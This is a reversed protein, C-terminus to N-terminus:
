ITSMIKHLVDTSIGFRANLISSWDRTTDWMNKKAHRVSDVHLHSTQVYADPLYLSVIDSHGAMMRHNGMQMITRPEASTNEIYALGASVLQETIPACRWSNLSLGLRIGQAASVVTNRVGGQALAAIRGILDSSIADDDDLRLTALWDSGTEACLDQAITACTKGVNTDPPVEVIKFYNQASLLQLRDKWRAPLLTSVLVVHTVNHQELKLMSPRCIHEFLALRAKMRSPNFLFNAVEETTQLRKPPLIKQHLESLFRSRHNTRTGRHVFGSPTVVSFRTFVLIM